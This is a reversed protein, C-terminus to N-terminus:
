DIPVLDLFDEGLRALLRGSVERMHRADHLPESYQLLRGDSKRKAALQLDGTLIDWRVHLVWGPFRPSELTLPKYPDAIAM